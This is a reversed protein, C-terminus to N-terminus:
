PRALRQWRRILLRNGAASPHDDPIKELEAVAGPFDGASAAMLALFRRCAAARSGQPYTRLYQEFKERAQPYDNQLFRAVGVQYGGEEAARRQLEIMRADPNVGPIKRTLQVVVYTSVADDYQGNLQQIRAKLFMHTPGLTGLMTEGSEGKRVERMIPARWVDVLREYTQQLLASLKGTGAVQQDPFSWVGLSRGPAWAEVLPKLRVTAGSKGDSSVLPDSVVAAHEGAFV